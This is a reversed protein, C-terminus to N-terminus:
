PHRGLFEQARRLNARADAYGPDLRVAQQFEQLAEPMRGTNALAVGLNNHGEASDPNIGIARRFAEVAEPVRNARALALGLNNAADFYDPKLRLALNFQEIAEPIRGAGAWRSAWTTAPRSSSPTWGCPRGTSNSRRATSTGAPRSRVGPQQPGHRPGAIRAADAPVARDGRRAPRRGHPRNGYNLHAGDYDPRIRLAAAFHASAEQKRGDDQLAGGLHIHALWNDSTVALAHEFLTM